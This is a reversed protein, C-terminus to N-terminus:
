YKRVEINQDLLKRKLKWIKKYIKNNFLSIFYKFWVKFSFPWKRLAKRYTKRGENINDTLCLWHAVRQLNYSYKKNAKILNLEKKYYEKYIYDYAKKKSVIDDTIRHKSHIYNIVLPEKVFDFKYKEALRIWMDYDQAAPLNENFDGVEDFCKKNILISSGGGPIINNDLIRYFVNGKYKPLKKRVIKGQNYTLSGTYIIKIDKIQSNFLKNIQKSIKEPLWEDDDDLFTIYKGKSAKIGINRTKSGGLNKKNEIYKINNNIKFDKVVEATKKRYKSNISNDDVIIIEIKNYTQNLVSKLARKLMKPRKYTPIIVSVSPTKDINNM